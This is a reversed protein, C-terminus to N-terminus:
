FALRESRHLLRGHESPDGSCHGQQPRGRWGSPHLCRDACQPGARRRHSLASTRASGGSSDNSSGGGLALASGGLVLAGVVLGVGAVRVKNM